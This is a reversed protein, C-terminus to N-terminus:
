LDQIGIHPNSLVTHNFESGNYSTTRSVCLLTSSMIVATSNTAGGVVASLDNGNYHNDSWQGSIPDVYLAFGQTTPRTNLPSGM